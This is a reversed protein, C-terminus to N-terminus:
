GPLRSIDAVELFLVNLQQLLALRNTRLGTDECLVLVQDFFTDIPARLDALTKLAGTYDRNRFKSEVAPAIAQVAKALGIEAPHSLLHEDVPGQMASQAQKLLNNIRKNAAALAAAEPLGQFSSVARVRLGF